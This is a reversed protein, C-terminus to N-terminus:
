IGHRIDAGLGRLTEVFGPFSDAICATDVVRTEGRAVLGAVALAMGLRHDGRSSVEAGDLAVPGEVIFGDPQTEIVAGLKRLEEAVATIRDTEKVRLEAADRVITRGTAQTALVALVPFEDIMKVVTNGGVQASTLKSAQVAIDGVPEGGQDRVHSLEVRAGMENLVGLLGTRTANIGVGVLRSESGPVLLTAAILFAASSIDGPIVRTLSRFRQIALPDVRAGTEDYTIADRDPTVPQIHAALMRETHDRAPGPQLVKVPGDAYLGALLIASKVQASAVSMEYTGTRLEAGGGIVLPAHGDTDSINAGM